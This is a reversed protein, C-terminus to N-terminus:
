RLRLHRVLSRIGFAARLYNSEPQDPRLPAAIVAIATRLAADCMKSEGMEPIDRGSVPKQKWQPATGWPM